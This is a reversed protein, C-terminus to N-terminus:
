SADHRITMICWSSDDHHMMIFWWSADHHIVMICWSSDDHHMMHQILLLSYTWNVRPSICVCKATFNFTPFGGRHTQDQLSLPQVFLRFRIDECPGYSHKSQPRSWLCSLYFMFLWVFIYYLSVCCLCVHSYLCMSSSCVCRILCSIRLKSHVRLVYSVLTFVSMVVHSVNFFMGHSCMPFSSSLFYCSLFSVLSISLSMPRCPIMFCCCCIFVFMDFSRSGGVLRLCSVVLLHTTFGVEIELMIYIYMYM